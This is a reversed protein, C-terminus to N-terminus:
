SSIEMKHLSDELAEIGRSWCIKGLEEGGGAGGVM